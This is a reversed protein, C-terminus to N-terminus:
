VLRSETIRPFKIELRAGHGPNPEIALGGSIVRVREKTVVPGRGSSKLENRVRRVRIPV